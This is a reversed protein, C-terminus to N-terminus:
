AASLAENKRFEIFSTYTERVVDVVFSCRQNDLPQNKLIQLQTTPTQHVAKKQLQIYNPQLQQVVSIGQQIEKM